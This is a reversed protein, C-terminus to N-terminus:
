LSSKIKNVSCIVTILHDVNSNTRQQNNNLIQIEENISKQDNVLGWKRDKLKNLNQEYNLKAKRLKSLRIRPLIIICVFAIILGIGIIALFPLVAISLIFSIVAGIMLFVLLRTKKRSSLKMSARYEKKSVDSYVKDLQEIEPELQNIQAQIQNARNHLSNLEKQLNQQQTLQGEKREENNSIYKDSYKIWVSKIEEKITKDTACLLARKVNEAMTEYTVLNLELNTYNKSEIEVLGMWGRHDNPYDKTVQTYINTAEKFDGFKEYTKANKLLREKEENGKGTVIVNEATINNTISYNYNNLAQEVIYKSGCYECFM